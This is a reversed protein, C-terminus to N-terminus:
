PTAGPAHAAGSGPPSSAERKPGIRRATEALARQLRPQKSWDHAATLRELFHKVTLSAVEGLHAVMELKIAEEIDARVLYQEYGDLMVHVPLRGLQEEFRAVSATGGLRGIAYAAEPVGLAFARFLLELQTRAGREALSRACLGRVGAESDRLGQALLEDAPEGAIRAVAAYAAARAAPRRHRTFAALVPLATPARTGGLALLARDTLADPQGAHLFSALASVADARTALADVISAAQGASAERAAASSAARGGRPSGGGEARTDAVPLALALGLVTGTLLQPTRRVRDVTGDKPRGDGDSRAAAM